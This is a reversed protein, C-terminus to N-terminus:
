KQKRHLGEFTAFAANLIDEVAAEIEGAFLDSMAADAGEFTEHKLRLLFGKHLANVFDPGAKLAIYTQALTLQLVHEIAILRAELEVEEKSLM